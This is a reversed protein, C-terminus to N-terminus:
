SAAPAPWDYDAAASDLSDLAARVEAIALTMKAREIALGGVFGPLEQDDPRMRRIAGISMEAEECALACECLAYRAVFLANEIPLVPPSLDDM